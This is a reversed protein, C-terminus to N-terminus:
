ENLLEKNEHINGIVEMDDTFDKVDGLTTEIVFAPYSCYGYKVEGIRERFYGLANYDCVKVIDGEYILKGNKDKLGTCQLEKIQCNSLRELELTKPNREFYTHELNGDSNVTQMIAFEKIFGKRNTHWLKKIFRDQM